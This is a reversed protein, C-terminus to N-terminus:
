RPQRSSACGHSRVREASSGDFCRLLARRRQSRFGCRGIRPYTVRRWHSEEGRSRVGSALPRRTSSMGVLQARAVIHDRLAFGLMAPTSGDALDLREVNLASVTFVYRHPGHGAPPAAGQFSKSDCNTPCAHDRRPAHAACGPERCGAATIRGLRSHQVRGLAVM